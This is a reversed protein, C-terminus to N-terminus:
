KNSPNALVERCKNLITRGWYWQLGTFLAVSVLPLGLETKSLHSRENWLDTGMCVFGVYPYGALRLVFFSLVFLGQCAANLAALFPAKRLVSSMDVYPNDFLDVVQLPISSVEGLGFFFAAYYLCVTRESVFAASLLMGVHHVILTKDRMVLATVPIDWFIMISVVFDCLHKGVANHGLVRQVTTPPGPHTLWYTSGVIGMYSTVVLAVLTHAVYHPAKKWPGAPAYWEIGHATAIQLALCALGPVVIHM